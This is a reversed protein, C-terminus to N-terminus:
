SRGHMRVADMIGVVTLEAIAEFWGEELYIDESPPEDSYAAVALPDPPRRLSRRGAARAVRARKHRRLAARPPSCREASPQARWRSRTAAARPPLSLASCRRSAASPWSVAGRGHCALALGMGAAVALRALRAPPAASPARAWCPPRLSRRSAPAPRAPSAWRRCLRPMSRRRLCRPPWCSCRMPARVAGCGQLVAATVATVTGALATCGFLPLRLRRGADDAYLM